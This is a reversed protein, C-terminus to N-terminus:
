ERARPVPSSSSSSAVADSPRVYLPELGPDTVELSPAVRALIAASPRREAAGDFRARPGVSAVGSGIWRVGESAVQEIRDAAEGPPLDFPGLIEEVALAGEGARFLAGYVRGRGADVLPAIFDGPSAPPLRHFSELAPEKSLSVRSDTEALALIQLSGLAVLPRELGFALAKAVALGIRTGTFSGPGLGVAVRGIDSRRAGVQRLTDDIMPLLAQGHRQVAAEHCAVVKGDVAVAVSAVSSSTDFALVVM